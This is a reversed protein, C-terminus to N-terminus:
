AAREPDASAPKRDAAAAYPPYHTNGGNSRVAQRAAAAAESRATALQQRLDAAVSTQDVLLADLQDVKEQLLGMETLQRAMAESERQLRDRQRKYDNSDSKYIKMLDANTQRAYDLQRNEQRLATIETAQRQVEADVLKAITRKIWKM